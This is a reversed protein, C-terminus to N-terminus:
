MILGNDTGSVGDKFDELHKRIHGSGAVDAAAVVTWGGVQQGPSQLSRKAPKAAGM